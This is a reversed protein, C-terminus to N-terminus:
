LIQQIIKEDKIKKLKNLKEKRSETNNNLIVIFKKVNDQLYENFKQEEEILYDFDNICNIIMNSLEQEKSRTINRKEELEEELQKQENKIEDILIQNNKFDNDIQDKVKDNISSILKLFYIAILQRLEIFKRINNHVEIELNKIEEDNHKKIEEEEYFKIEQEYKIFWINDTINDNILEYYGEIVEIISIYKNIDFKGQYVEEYREISDKIDKITIVFLQKFNNYKTVEDIKVIINSKITEIGVDEFIDILKTNGGKIYKKKNKIIKRRRSKSTIKM